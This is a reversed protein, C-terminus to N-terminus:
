SDEFTIELDMETSTSSASSAREDEVHVDSDCDDESRALSHSLNRRELSFPSERSKLDSIPSSSEPSEPTLAAIGANKPNRKHIPSSLASWSKLSEFLSSRHRYTASTAVNVNTVAAAGTSTSTADERFEASLEPKTPTELKGLRSPYRVGQFSPVRSITPSISPSFNPSRPFVSEKNMMYTEDIYLDKTLVIYCFLLIILFMCFYTLNRYFMLSNSIELVQRQLEINGTDFSHQQYEFLGSFSNYVDTNLKQFVDMQSHITSNLQTLIDQFKMSQQSELNSFAESLLKSQEEVYLLSLTSNSELLNLRKVINKYISDQPAVKASGGTSSTSLLEPTKSSTNHAEIEHIGVPCQDLTEKRRNEYDLLFQELRLYGTSCNSKSKTDPYICKDFTFNFPTIKYNLTENYDDGREEVDSENMNALQETVPLVPKMALSKIPEDAEADEEEKFQEIMTKGHVQVSSIPCYYEDGYHTLLEIKLFKSWIMPNKIEFNQLKRVNEAEYEGLVVWQQAPFRDSASIRFDKFMSSYFEYNGILVEDVLIDECLEIIIFKNQASCENLLYSDKNDLLIATASKAEKNTKVITAACDLSAFNFRDKYLKGQDEEDSGAFMSIEIVMEDGLAGDGDNSRSSPSERTRIRSQRPIQNTGNIHSGITQSDWDSSIPEEESIKLSSQSKHANDISKQNVQLSNDLEDQQLKNKKWEEFSQFCPVTTNEEQHRQEKSVISSEAVTTSELRASTETPSLSPLSSSSVAAASACRSASKASVNTDSITTSAFSSSIVTITDRGITTDLEDPIADQAPSSNIDSKATKLLLAFLITVKWVGNM